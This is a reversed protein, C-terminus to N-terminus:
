FLYAARQDFVLPIFHSSAMKHILRQPEAMSGASDKKGQLSKIRRLLVRIICEWKPDSDDIVAPIM